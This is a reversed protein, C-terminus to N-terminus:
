VRPRIRFEPRPRPSGADLRNAPKQSERALARAKQLTVLAAAEQTRSEWSYAGERLAAILSEFDPDGPEPDACVAELECLMEEISALFSRLRVRRHNAWNLESIGDAFRERLMTGAMAGRATLTDILAKPMDLNLGGEGPDLQVHAIRDRYAPLRSQTNDSWNHIANFIAGLFGLLREVGSMGAEDFRTWHELIGDQNRSPMFVSAPHDPHKDTLDIAFTPWGPLPPDFFHIPFNSSIGGDSFWCREPRQDEKRTRTFDAFYLPVASLLIPFSLSMRVAVVVPLHQPLPLAVLHGFREQDAADIPRPHAELYKVVRPPFLRDFDAPDFFFHNEHVDDDQRFPLRYPRGHTICTTMMELNIVRESIPEDGTTQWLDGFTLPEAEPGIPRGALDDLYDTFWATLPPPQGPTDGNPMGSCLGYMNAPLSVAARFGVALAAGALAGGVAVGISVLLSVWHLLGSPSARVSTFLLAGAIAGLVAAIPFQLVGTVAVRVPALAGGGLGAALTRFVPATANQPQFLSFLRSKGGATPASLVDPLQALKAFSGKARGVEAAAAAAAAIAGASAGGISRFRYARAIEVLALPFVVGSTIGGKMVVNCKRTVDPLSSEQAAFSM